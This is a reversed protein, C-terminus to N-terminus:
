TSFTDVTCLVIVGRQLTQGEPVFLECYGKFICLHKAKVGPLTVSTLQIAARNKMGKPDRGQLLGAAALIFLLETHKPQM